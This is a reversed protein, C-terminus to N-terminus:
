LNIINGYKNPLNLMTLAAMQGDNKIGCKEKKAKTKLAALTASLEFVSNYVRSKSNIAVVTLTALPYNEQIGNRSLATIYGKHKDADSYFAIVALEFQKVITTFYDERIPEDIIAVFDDGGIHGIFQSSPINKDLIDALLRIVLDGNEFGYIDNYTKFNDIDFYAISTEQRNLLCQNLKQEILLNGPLGTLPNKHTANFVEIEISKQLLDKVTVTGFYKNNESVVIFDYLNEHARSMAMTSVVKVPTECDVQLFNNDIIASVPKNQYLTYGYQGGLKQYLKEKSIIGVPIDNEVVCLGFCDQNTEFINCVQSIKKAPCVIGTTTCLHKISSSFSDDRVSNNKRFNIDKVLDIIEIRIEKIETEPKQFYYGQGYQVGLNIIEELEEYTEIGEAILKVNSTKSFEVMGRVLASKLSSLNINRILKMDLKIYNPNIDSILNLGSYGAGADDIAIKYNQSKYHNITSLFGVMDEIVHKETIEFIVNNPAIEYQKLFEKTFGKKFTEDHMTSPNVNLFLKKDFPSIMFKYASELAITRCLLELDWLRNHKGAAIFLDEPSKILSEGTVRSLAEYGLVFGDWLSIIPQFVARIRKHQIIDDLEKKILEIM